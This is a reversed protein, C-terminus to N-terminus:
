FPASPPIQVGVGKPAVGELHHTQWNWWKRMTVAVRKLIKALDADSPADLQVPDEVSRKCEVRTQPRPLGELRAFLKEVVDERPRVSRRTAKINGHGLVYQLPFPIRTSAQM